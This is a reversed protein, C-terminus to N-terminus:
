YKENDSATYRPETPSDQFATMCMKQTFTKEASSKKNQANKEM